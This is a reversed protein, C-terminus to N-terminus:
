SMRFCVCMEVDSDASFPTGDGGISIVASNCSRVGSYLRASLAGGQQAKAYQPSACCSLDLGRMAASIIGNNSASHGDLVACGGEAVVQYPLPTRCPGPGPAMATGQETVLVDNSPQRSNQQQVVLVVLAV